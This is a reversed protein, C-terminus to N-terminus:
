FFFLIIKQDWGLPVPSRYSCVIHKYSARHKMGILKYAVHSAECFFTEVKSGVGPTSPAHLMHKCITANMMGKLKIHLMHTNQFLQIIVKQGWGLTWPPHRHAFYKSGHQHM